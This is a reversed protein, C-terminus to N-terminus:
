KEKLDYFGDSEEVKWGNKLELIWGEGKVFKDAIKTPKTVTVSSWNSSLLAGKEVTLIGWDDTVRLNPYVTGLNELPTINRPDFSINMNRFPLKLTPEQLFMKKYNEIKELRRNEREKEEDVIKRYNYENKIAISEYSRETISQISFAHMFYDTLNTEKGIEKQWNNNNLSLLYGYVPITQYAFSRVFTANNYFNNVNKIFHERIEKDGRGSLMVGTYEALGENIELSNEAMKKADNSQRFYRFTLANALHSESSKSDKAELSKKLAELELKLLLRGEYTDLHSNSQESLSDFGIKPQIRHFLEHVILNNRVYNDNPLPTMVMTWREDYWNIATNAINLEKPLTDVFVNGIKKFRGLKNNQNAIFERTNPDILLIPGYLQHTWFKGNDIKLLSDVEHFTLEYSSYKNQSNITGYIKTNESKKNTCSCILLIILLYITTKISM